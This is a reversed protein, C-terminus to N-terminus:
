RNRSRNARRLGAIRIQEQQLKGGLVSRAEREARPEPVTDAQLRNPWSGVEEM